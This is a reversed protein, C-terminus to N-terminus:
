VAPVVVEPVMDTAVVEVVAAWWWCTSRHSAM